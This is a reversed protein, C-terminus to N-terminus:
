DLIVKKVDLYFKEKDKKDQRIGTVITFEMGKTLEILQALNAAGTADRLPKQFEKFKGQGFENDMQFLMSSEAGLEPPVATADSLERVELVKFKAEISPHEGVMKSALEVSVRYAGPPYVLFEPLDALDDLSTELLANLLEANENGSM